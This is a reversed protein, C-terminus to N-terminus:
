AARRRVAGRRGRRAGRPRGTPVPRLATPAESTTPARPEREILGQAQVLVCVRRGVGPQWSRCPHPRVSLLRPGAPVPPSVPTRTGHDPNSRILANLAHFRDSAAPRRNRTSAAPCVCTWTVPRTQRSSTSACTNSSAATSRPRPSFAAVSDRAPARFPGRTPNGRKLFFLGVPPDNRMRFLALLPRDLIRTPSPSCTLDTLRGFIPVNRSRSSVRRNRRIIALSRARITNTVTDRPAFRHHIEMMTSAASRCGAARCVGWGPSRAVCDSPVVCSGSCSSCAQTPTSRPRCARATAPVELPM